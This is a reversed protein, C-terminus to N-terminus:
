FFVAGLPVPPSQRGISFNFFRQGWEPGLYQFVPNSAVPLVGEQENYFPAIFSPDPKRTPDDWTSKWSPMFRNPIEGVGNWAEQEPGVAELASLLGGRLRSGGGTLWAVNQTQLCSACNENAAEAPFSLFVTLLTALSTAALLPWSAKSRSPAPARSARQLSFM